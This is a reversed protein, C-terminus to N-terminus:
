DGFDRDGIANDSPIDRTATRGLVSEYHRPEIGTQGELPRKLSTNERTLKEGKRIPTTAIVCRHMAAAKKRESSTLKKVESGLMIEAERVRRVMVAFSDRNLSIAHDFGPRATDFSFHKEIMTAGAAVALAAAVTGESHDSFGAPLDHKEALWRITRLNLTEIPAPYLSTCQFLGLSMAGANRAAEVALDIDNSEAMGTSMLLTRGTQAAEGIFPAHTLLGSSIKHAAPDLQDVWDLTQVDGTTTFPEMGLKRTLDFMRATVDRDLWGKSFIRYSETNRAYNQDPDITQLKISDAGAQAADEIMRACSEEDGEHNIGIEAIIAVDEGEGIRRSGFAVTNRKDNSTDHPTRAVEPERKWPAAKEPGHGVAITRWQSPELFRSLALCLRPWVGNGPTARLQRSSDFRM